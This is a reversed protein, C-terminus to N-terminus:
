HRELSEWGSGRRGRVPAKTGPAETIYAYMCAHLCPHFSYTLSPKGTGRGTMAATKYPLIMGDTKTHDGRVELPGVVKRRKEASIITYRDVCRSSMCGRSGELGLALDRTSTVYWPVATGCLNADSVQVCEVRTM